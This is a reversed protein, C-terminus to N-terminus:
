LIAEDHANKLEKKLEENESKLSDIETFSRQIVDDYSEAPILKKNKLLKQTNRNVGITTNNKM